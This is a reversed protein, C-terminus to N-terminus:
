ESTSPRMSPGLRGAQAVTIRYVPMQRLETHVRLNFREFLLRRLMFIAQGPLANDPPKAIIDFRSDLVVNHRGGGDDFKFKALYFPIGFAAPIIGYVTLLLNDLDFDTVSATLLETIRCWTDLITLIPAHVRWHEFTKPRYRANLRCAGM